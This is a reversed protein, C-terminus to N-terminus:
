GDGGRSEDRATDGMTQPAARRADMEQAITWTARGDTSEAARWHFRTPTIRSFIWRDLAGGEVERELIIEDEMQRAIFLAVVGGTPGVWTCRWADISPDFFRVTVGYAGAGTTERLTRRPVIFVDVVARGDLAWGFHWEGPMYTRPGNPGITTVDVDWAGVFQGFLACRDGLDPHPGPARLADIMADLDM